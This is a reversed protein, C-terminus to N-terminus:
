RVLPGEFQARFVESVIKLVFKHAKLHVGQEHPFMFTVDCDGDEDERNLKLAKLFFTEM